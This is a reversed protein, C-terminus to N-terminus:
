IKTALTILYTSKSYPYIYVEKKNKALIKLLKKKKKRNSHNKEVKDNNATNFTTTMTIKTLKVTIICLSPPPFIAM